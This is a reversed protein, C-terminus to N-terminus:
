RSGCGGSNRDGQRVSPPDRQLPLRPVERAIDHQRDGIVEIGLFALHRPRQDILHRRLAPEADRDRGFVAPKPEGPTFAGATGSLVGCLSGLCCGYSYGSVPLEM